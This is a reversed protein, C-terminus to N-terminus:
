KLGSKIFIAELIKEGKGAMKFLTGQAKGYHSVTVGTFLEPARQQSIPHGRARSQTWLGMRDCTALLLDVVARAKHNLYQLGRNFHFCRLPSCMLVNHDM